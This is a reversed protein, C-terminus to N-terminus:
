ILLGVSEALPGEYRVKLPPGVPVFTTDASAPADAREVRVEGDLATVGAGPSLVLRLM